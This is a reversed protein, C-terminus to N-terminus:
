HDYVGGTYEFLVDLAFSLTDVMERAPRRM